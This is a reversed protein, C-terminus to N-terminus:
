EKRFIYSAIAALFFSSYILMDGPVTAYHGPGSRKGFHHTVSVVDGTHKEYIGLLLVLVIIIICLPKPNLM